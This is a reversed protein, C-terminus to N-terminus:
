DCGERFAAECLAHAHATIRHAAGAMPGALRLDTVTHMAAEALQMREADTLAALAERAREMDRDREVSM